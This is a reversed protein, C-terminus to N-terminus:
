SYVHEEVWKKGLANYQKVTEKSKKRLEDTINSVSTVELTKQPDLIIVPAKTLGSQFDNEDRLMNYGKSQLAEKFAKQTLPASPDFDPSFTMAVNLEYYWAKADSGTPNDLMRRLEKDSGHQGALNTFNNRFKSDNKLMDVMIKTAEDVSPAKLDEKPKLSLVKDRGGGFLGKGGIYKVYKANDYELVSAYTIDRLPLSKDNVLRQLTTGKSVSISGDSKISVGKPVFTKDDADSYREKGKQTLTGDKNQFRRVGWRMGKIGFHELYDPYNCSNM